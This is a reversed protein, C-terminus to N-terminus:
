RSDGAGDLGELPAQVPGCVGREGVVLQDRGITLYQGAVLDVLDGMQEALSSFPEVAPPDLHEILGVCQM